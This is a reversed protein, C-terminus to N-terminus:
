SKCVQCTVLLTINGTVDEHSVKIYNRILM